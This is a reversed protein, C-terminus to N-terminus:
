QFSRASNIRGTPEVKKATVFMMLNRKVAREGESRFLRGVLPMSGLFPVKDEYSEIRENVLGGMGITAGDAITVETEINRVRFIPLRAQIADHYFKLGIRYQYWTYASDKPAVDYTQWGQLETIKPNLEMEIQDGDVQPTVTLEVGLLKEEWDEYKVHVINGGSANPEYVEPYIHKQGVRIVAEEGSKTVIRPASLVDAGSSQDLASILLDLPNSGNNRLALTASESSFSNSIDFATWDENLGSQTGAGISGAGLTSPQSFPLTEDSGGRLAKAFLGDVGDSIQIDDGEIGSGVTGDFNWEFGLAELTGESVEVFKAEIEVQEVDESTKAVDMAELVEEIITLNEVTNRVFIKEMKPQYMAASGEPFEVEPFKASVDVPGEVDGLEMKEASDSSVSYSRLVLSTNWGATVAQMGSVEVKRQDREAIKRLYMRAVINEPSAAIVRKFGLQAREFEGMAYADRSDEIVAPIDVTGEAVVPEAAPVEEAVAPIATEPASMSAAETQLGGLENLIGEVSESQQQAFSFGALLVTTTIFITKRM